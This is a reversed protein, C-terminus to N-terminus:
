FVRGKATVPVHEILTGGILDQVHRFVALPVDPAYNAEILYESTVSNLFELLVQDESSWTGDYRAERGEFDAVIM